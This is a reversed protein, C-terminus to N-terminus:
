DLCVEAEEGNPNWDQLVERNGGMVVLIQEEVEIPEVKRYPDEEESRQDVFHTQMSEM